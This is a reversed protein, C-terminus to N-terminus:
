DNLLIIGGPSLKEQKGTEVGKAEIKIEPVIIQPRSVLAARHKEFLHAPSERLVRKRLLRAAARREARTSNPETIAREQLFIETAM